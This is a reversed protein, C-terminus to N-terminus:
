KRWEGVKQAKVSWDFMLAMRENGFSPASAGNNTWTGGMTADQEIM